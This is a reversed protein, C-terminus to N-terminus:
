TKEGAGRLKKMDNMSDFQHLTTIKKKERNKKRKPLAEMVIQNSLSLSLSSLQNELYLYCFCVFILALSAMEELPCMHTVLVM